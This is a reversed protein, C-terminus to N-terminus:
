SSRTTVPPAPQPAPQTTPDAPAGSPASPVPTGQPARVKRARQKAIARQKPGLVPDHGAAMQISLVVSLILFVAISIAAIRATTSSLRPRRGKRM